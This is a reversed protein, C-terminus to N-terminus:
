KNRSHEVEEKILYGYFSPVSMVCISAKTWVLFFFFFFVFVCLCWVMLHIVNREKEGAAKLHQFYAQKRHFIRVDFECAWGFQLVLGAM